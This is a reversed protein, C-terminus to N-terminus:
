ALEPEIFQVIEDLTVLAPLREAQFDTRRGDGEIELLGDRGPRGPPPNRCLRRDHAVRRIREARVQDADKVPLFGVDAEVRRDAANRVVFAPGQCSSSCM